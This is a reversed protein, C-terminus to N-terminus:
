PATMFESTYESSLHNGVEDTVARNVKIHFLISPPLKEFPELVVRGHLGEEEEEQEDVTLQGRLHLDGSRVAVSDHRVTAPDVPKSFWITIAADVPVDSAGDEPATRLVVLESEDIPPYLREGSLDACGSLWSNILGFFLILACVPM